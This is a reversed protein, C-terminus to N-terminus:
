DQTQFDISCKSVIEKYNMYADRLEDQAQELSGTLNRPKLNIGLEREIV